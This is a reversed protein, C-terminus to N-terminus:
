KDFEKNVIEILDVRSTAVVEDGFDVIADNDPTYGRLVGEGSVMHYVKTGPECNRRIM